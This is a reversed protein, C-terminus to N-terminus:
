PSIFSSTARATSVSIILFLTYASRSRRLSGGEPLGRLFFGKPRNGGECLRCGANKTKSDDSSLQASAPGGNTIGHLSRRKQFFSATHFIKKAAGQSNKGNTYPQSLKPRFVPGCASYFWIGAFQKQIRIQPIPREPTRIESIHPIFYM